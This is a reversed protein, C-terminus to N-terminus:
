RMCTPTAHFRMTVRTGPHTDEFDVSDTLARIIRTGMGASPKLDSRERGQDWVSVTLTAEDLRGQIEFDVCDTHRVANTAAETVALQVNAVIDGRIRADHCWGRVRHRAQPVSAPDCPLRLQFEASEAATPTTGEMRERSGVVHVRYVPFPRWGVLGTNRRVIETAQTPPASHWLDALEDYFMQGIHRYGVRLAEHVAAITEEPSTQFVGYGLAPLDVGNNLTLTPIASSQVGEM